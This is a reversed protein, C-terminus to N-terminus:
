WSMVVLEFRKVARSAANGMTYSVPIRESRFQGFVARMDPHDNISLMVKGAATRM